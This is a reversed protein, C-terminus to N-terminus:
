LVISSAKFSNINATTSFIFLALTISVPSIALMEYVLLLPSNSTLAELCSINWDHPTSPVPGPPSLGTTVPVGNLNLPACSM